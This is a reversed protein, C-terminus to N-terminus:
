RRPGPWCTTCPIGMSDFAYALSADSYCSLIRARAPKAQKEFGLIPLFLFSRCWTM